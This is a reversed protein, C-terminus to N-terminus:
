SHHVTSKNLRIVIIPLYNGNTDQLVHKATVLYVNYNDPSEENKVGVFFGTGNPVSQDDKEIFIFTTCQKIETLHNTIAM